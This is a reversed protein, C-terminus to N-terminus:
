VHGDLQTQPQVSESTSASTFLGEQSTDEDGSSSSSSSSTELIAICRTQIAMSLDEDSITCFNRRCTPCPTEIDFNGEHRNLKRFKRHSHNALYQVMCEQHYVHQCGRDHYNSKDEDADSDSDTSDAASISWVVEDGTEFEEFCIVCTGSIHPISKTGSPSHTREEITELLTHYSTLYGDDDRDSEVDVFNDNDNSKSGNRTSAEMSISEEDDNIDRLGENGESKSNIIDESKLVLRNPNSCFTKNYLFVWDEVSLKQIGHKGDDQRQTDDEPGDINFRQLWVRILTMFVVGVCVVVVDILFAIQTVSIGGTPDTTPALTASATAFNGSYDANRTRRMNQLSEYM